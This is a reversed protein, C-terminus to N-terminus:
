FDYSNNFSCDTCKCQMIKTLVRKFEHYKKSVNQVTRNSIDTFCIISPKKEFSQFTFLTLIIWSKVKNVKIKDSELFWFKEMLLLYFLM